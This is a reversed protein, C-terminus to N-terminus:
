EFQDVADHPKTQTLVPKKYIIEKSIITQFKLFYNRVAVLDNTRFVTLLAKDEYIRRAM